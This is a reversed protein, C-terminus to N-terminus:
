PVEGVPYAGAINPSAAVEAAPRFALSAVALMFLLSAPSGISFLMIEGLSETIGAAFLAAAWIISSHRRCRIITKFCLIIIVLLPITGCLGTEALAMLIGNHASSCSTANFVLDAHNGAGVGLLPAAPWVKTLIFKWIEYRGTGGNLSRYDDDLSLLNVFFDKRAALVFLVGVLFVGAPVLLKGFRLQFWKFHRLRLATWMGLGAVFAGLATRSKTSLWIVASLFFVAAWFIRLIKRPVTVALDIASVATMVAVFGTGNTNLFVTLREAPDLLFEPELYFLHFVVFAVGAMTLGVRFRMVATDGNRVVSLLISFAPVLALYRIISENESNGLLGSICAVGVHAALLLGCSSQSWATLVLCGSAFLSLVLAVGLGGAQVIAGSEEAALSFAALCGWLLAILWQFWHTRPSCFQRRPTIREKARPFTTEVCSISSSTM